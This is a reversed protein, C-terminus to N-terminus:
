NNEQYGTTALRVSVAKGQKINKYPISLPIPKGTRGRPKNDVWIRARPSAEVMLTAPKVGIEFVKERIPM